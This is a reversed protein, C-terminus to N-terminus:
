ISWCCAATATSSRSRCAPRARRTSSGSRTTSRCDRSSSVGRGRPRPLGDEWGSGDLYGFRVTRELGPIEAAIADVIATRDFDSAATATATSPSCSRRSSRPSATSSAAPASSPRRRPGSPAWRRSRSSPPSRRSSTRCTPPSATAAASASPSWGPASGPPRRRGARGLHVRRARAARLRPPDRDRRSRSRALIHGAYNLAAGPFWRAGPMRADALVEDYSAPSGTTPGSRAWFREIDDVSWRWLEHTTPRAARADRAFRTIAAREVREPSPNWLLEPTEESMPGAM